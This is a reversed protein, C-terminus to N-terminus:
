QNPQSAQNAGARANRVQAIEQGAADPNMEGAGPQQPGEAPAPQMGGQQLIQQSLGEALQPEYKAALGLALKQYELLMQQLQAQQAIMRMVDEKRDFDMVELLMLAKDANVPEFVGMQWLQVAWENIMNKTYQTSTQTTIELDFEPLRYGMDVGFAEGQAQPQLGQNDFSVFQEQGQDGTIRYTREVDYFQRILEIIM